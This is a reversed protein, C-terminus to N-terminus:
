EVNEGDELHDLGVVYKLWIFLILIYFPVSTLLAKETGLCSMMSAYLSCPSMAGRKRSRLLPYLYITLNVSLGSQGRAVGRGSGM